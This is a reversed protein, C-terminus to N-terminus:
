NGDLRDIIAAAIPEVQQRLQAGITANSELIIMVGYGRGMDLWAVAGFAGPDFVVGPQDRSVWWGLGYGPFAPDPTSGGYVTGIRDEQMRLVSDAELVRGNPCMGGRLHMLLIQGYSAVDAYAGGEINPNTTPSLTAPNAMFFTPYSLLGVLGGRAFADAYHNAFALTDLGCPDVYTEQVLQAWPKGSVAEAIGGALQWQAGGYRFQTDPTVRSAADAAQYITKSCNPLMDTGLFQCLYPAYGLDDALGVLGSSNSLLQAVTINTKYQGNASLYDSIPADLDLLGQDSLRMLVGASLIKSSSALVSIRGVDFAGYGRTHLVGRDRHVVVATAGSLGNARIFSEVKRDFEAFRGEPTVCSATFVGLAMMLVRFLRSYPM